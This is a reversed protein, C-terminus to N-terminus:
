ELQTLENAEAVRLEYVYNYADAEAQDTTFRRERCFGEPTYVMAWYAYVPRDAQPSGTSGPQPATGPVAERVQIGGADYNDVTPDASAVGVSQALLLATLVLVRQM